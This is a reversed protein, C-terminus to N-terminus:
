PTRKAVSWNLCFSIDDLFLVYFEFRVGCIAISQTERSLTSVVSLFESPKWNMVVKTHTRVWVQSCNVDWQFLGFILEIMIYSLLLFLNWVFYKWFDLMEFMGMVKLSFCILKSQNVPDRKIVVTIYINYLLQHNWFKEQTRVM